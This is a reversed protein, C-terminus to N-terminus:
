VHARGIEFEVYAHAFARLRAAFDPAGALAARLNGHHYPRSTVAM